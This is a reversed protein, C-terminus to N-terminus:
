NRPLPEADIPACYKCFPLGAWYLAEEEPFIDRCGECHEYFRMVCLSCVANGDRDKRKQHNIQDFPTGCVSCVHDHM